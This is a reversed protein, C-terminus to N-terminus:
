LDGFLERRIRAKQAKTFSPDHRVAAFREAKEVLTPKLEQVRSEFDTFDEQDVVGKQALYSHFALLGDCVEEVIERDADSMRLIFEDMIFEFHIDLLVVNEYLPYDFLSLEELFQFFARISKFLELDRPDKWTRCVHRKWAQLRDHNWQDFDHLAEDEDFPQPSGTDWRQLAGSDLPRTLYDEVTGPNEELCALLRFNGAAHVDDPDLQLARELHPRAEEPRGAELLAWGLNSHNRFDEPALDLAEKFRRIAGPFDGVYLLSAGLDSKFRPDQPYHQVLREMFDRMLDYRLLGEELREIIGDVSDTLQDNVQPEREAMRDAAELLCRRAEDPRGAAAELFGLDLLAPYYAPCEALLERLEENLQEPTPKPAGFPFMTAAALGAHRWDALDWPDMPKKKKQGASPRSRPSQKRRKKKM